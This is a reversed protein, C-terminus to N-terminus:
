LKHGTGLFLESTDDVRNSSQHLAPGLDCLSLNGNASLRVTFFDM